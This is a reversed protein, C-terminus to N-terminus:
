LGGRIAYLTILPGTRYALAFACGGFSGELNTRDATERCWRVGPM